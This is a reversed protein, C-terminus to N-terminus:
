GPASGPAADLRERVLKLDAWAERKKEPVRLLFAPNFSPVLDIELGNLQLLYRRGRLDSISQRSRLLTQAALAGAAFIVRPGVALIQRLLLPRCAEIEEVAFTREGPPICKIVNCLYSGPRPSGIADLMRNLLQGAPGSFPLGTTADDPGPGEGVVMLDARAPGEGFIIPTGGACAGCAHNSRVDELVRALSDDPPAEVSERHQPLLAASGEGFLTPGELVAKRRPAM